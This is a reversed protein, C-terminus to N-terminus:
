KKNYKRVHFHGHPGCLSDCSRATSCYTYDSESRVGSVLFKNKELTDQFMKCKGYIVDGDNSPVFFKCNFCFKEKYSATQTMIGFIFLLFFKM